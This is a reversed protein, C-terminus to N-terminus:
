IGLYRAVAQARSRVQLKQYIHKTHTNVTSYSIGMAEATEKYSFGKVLYGLVDVERTSLNAAAPEVSFNACELKMRM